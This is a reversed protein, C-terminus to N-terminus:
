HLSARGLAATVLHHVRNEIVGLSLLSDVALQIEAGDVAQGRHVCQEQRALRLLALEYGLGYTSIASQSRNFETVADDWRSLHTFARGRVRRVAAGYVGVDGGLATM